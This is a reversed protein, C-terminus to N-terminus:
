KPVLSSSYPQTRGFTSARAWSTWMMDLIALHYGWEAYATKPIDRWSLHCYRCLIKGPTLLRIPGLYSEM